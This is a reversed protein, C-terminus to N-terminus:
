TKKRTTSNKKRSQRRTKRKTPENKVLKLLKSYLDENIVENQHSEIYSKGVIQQLCLLGAPVALNNLLSSVGGGTQKASNLTQMPPVGQQLLISNIGFGASQISNDDATHFVLESPDFQSSGEVKSHKGM